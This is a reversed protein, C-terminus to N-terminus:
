DPEHGPNITLQDLARVTCFPVYGKDQAKAYADDINSRTTAYDVTLVLKGAAAFIDLYGEIEATVQPPTAQDDADYGYYTDEQGIGTVTNVYDTYNVALEAGNQPFVGFGPRRARAYAAIDLVFDVMEQAATTRGQDEYYEYADIIDLYVGDFGAAIIKDLYSDPSGYIIAQWDPHWYKVKYNGPWDPNEADLWEPNGPTWGAQWYYRYDEAEGISMYAVVLKDGGSSHRLANIQAATYEGAATGDSSYDMVVLDYKSQGVAELDVNQLQYLWDNVANWDPVSYGKFTIPLYACPTVTDARAICGGIVLMMALLAWMRRVPKVEM